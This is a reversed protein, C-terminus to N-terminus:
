GNRIRKPVLMDKLKIFDTFSVGTLKPFKLILLVAGLSYILGMVFIRVLVTSIYQTFLFCLGTLGFLLALTMIQDAIFFKREINPNFIKLLINITGIQSIVLALAMGFGGLGFGPVIASQPAVLSYTLLTGFLASGISTLSYQRTKMSALFFVSLLQGLGQHITAFLMLQFVHLGEKYGPGLLLTSFEDAWVIVFVCIYSTFFFPFRIFKEFLKNVRQAEQNGAAEAVEKWLVRTLSATILLAPMGLQQGASVYAQDHNGFYKQVLWRNFFGTFFLIAANWALPTCYKYFETAMEKLNFPAQALLHKNKLQKWLLTGSVLLTLFYSLSMLFYAFFSSKQTKILVFYVLSLFLGTVIINLIQILYTKRFSEGLSSFSIWIQQQFYIAVFAMVVTLRPTHVWIGSFLSDPILWFLLISFSSLIFLQWAGYALIYALSRPKQSLFTYFANTSGSDLLLNLATFTALLFSYEGFQEVGLARALLIGTLYTFIGRLATASLSFLYRFPLASFKNNNSIETQM